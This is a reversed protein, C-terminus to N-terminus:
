YTQIITKRVVPPTTTEFWIIVETAQLGQQTLKDQFWTAYVEEDLDGRLYANTVDM